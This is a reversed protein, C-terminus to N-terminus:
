SNRQAFIEQIIQRCGPLFELLLLNESCLRAKKLRETLTHPSSIDTSSFVLGFDGAIVDLSLLLPSTNM